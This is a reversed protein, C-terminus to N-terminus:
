LFRTAVIGYAITAAALIVFLCVAYVELWWPPCPIAFWLAAIAAIVLSATFPAMGWRGVSRYKQLTADNTEAPMTAAQAFLFGAFILLLGALGVGAGLLTAMLAAQDHVSALM